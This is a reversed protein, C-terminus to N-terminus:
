TKNALEVLIDGHCAYHPRCYCGLIKGKLEPLRKMLDPQQVIWDRYKQIVEQRNGDRGIIFPNGWISVKNTIPCKGRGIYIDYRTNRCHVVMLKDGM